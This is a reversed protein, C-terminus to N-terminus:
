GPAPEPSGLPAPAPPARARGAETWARFARVTPGVSAAFLAGNVLAPLVNFALGMLVLPALAAPENAYLLLWTLADSAASFLFTALIGFVASLAPDPEIRRMAGGVLALLAMAPANVFGAPYLGTLLFDTLAMGLFAGAAAVRPGFLVGGLFAVVYSLAVNPLALLALRGAACLAAVAVLPVFWPPTPHGALQLAERRLTARRHAAVVLAPLLRAAERARALRGAPWAGELRRADRLRAFDRGLDHAALLVAALLATARPPLRLGDLLREAGFRSLLALNVALAASLRLGGVLGTMWGDPPAVLGLILVNLPLAVAVFALFPGRGRMAVAGAATALALAPWPALFAFATGALM